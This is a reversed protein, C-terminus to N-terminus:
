MRAVWVRGFYSMWDLTRRDDLLVLGGATISEVFKDTRWAQHRDRDLVETWLHTGDIRNKPSPRACGVAVYRADASFVMVGLVGPCVKADYRKIVEYTAADQDYRRLERGDASMGFFARAEHSERAVGLTGDDVRLWRAQVPDLRAPLHAGSVSYPEPRVTSAVSPTTGDVLQLTAAAPDWLVAGVRNGEGGTCGLM